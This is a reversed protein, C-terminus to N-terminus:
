SVYGDVDRVRGNVASVGGGGDTGDQAPGNTKTTPNQTKLILLISKNFCNRDILKRLIKLLRKYKRIIFCVNAGGVLVDREKPM